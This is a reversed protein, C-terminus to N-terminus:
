AVACVQKHLNDVATALQRNEELMQAVEEISRMEEEVIEPDENRSDSTTRRSAGVKGTTSTPKRKSDGGDGWGSTRGGTKARRDTKSAGSAKSSSTATSKASRSHPGPSRSSKSSTEISFGIKTQPIAREPLVIKSSIRFVWLSM